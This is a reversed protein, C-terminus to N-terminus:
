KKHLAMLVTRLDKTEILQSSISDGSHRNSFDFLFGPRCGRRLPIAIAGLRRRRRDGRHTEPVSSHPLGGQVMTM